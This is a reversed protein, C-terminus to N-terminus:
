KPVGRGHSFLLVLLFSRRFIISEECRSRSRVFADTRHHKVAGIDIVAGKIRM